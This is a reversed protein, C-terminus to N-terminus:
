QLAELEAKVDPLKNAPVDAMVNAGYKGIVDKIQTKLSRNNRVMELCMAQLDEHTPGSPEAPQPAEAEAQESQAQTPMTDSGGNLHLFLNNIVLRLDRIENKLEKIETELM